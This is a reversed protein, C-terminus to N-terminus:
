NDGTTPPLIRIWRRSSGVAFICILCARILLCFSLALLIFVAKEDAVQKSAQEPMSEDTTVRTVLIATSLSLLLSPIQAVLGDGITLLVYIRGAESLSLEHQTTGVILGGVVNIILILIGAIADGRVFKSAGDM